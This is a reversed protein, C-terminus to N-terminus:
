TEKDPQIDDPLSIDPHRERTEPRTEPNREERDIPRDWLETDLPARALSRWIFIWAVVFLVFLIALTAMDPDIQSLNTKKDASPIYKPTGGIRVILAWVCHKVFAFTGALALLPFAFWVLIKMYDLRGTKMTKDPNNGPSTMKLFIEGGLIITRSRVSAGSAKRM